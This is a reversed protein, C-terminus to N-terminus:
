PLSCHSADHENWTPDRLPALPGYRTSDPGWGRPFRIRSLLAIPPAPNSGAVEQKYPLREGLQALRGEADPYQPRSCARSTRPDAKCCTTTASADDRDRRLSLHLRVRLLENAGRRLDASRPHAPPRRHGRAAGAHRGPPEDRVDLRVDAVLKRAHRAREPPATRGHPSGLLCVQPVLAWRVSREIAVPIGVVTLSLVVVTLGARVVRLAAGLVAGMRGTSTECARSRKRAMSSAATAATGVVIAAGILAGFGGVASASRPRGRWQERGYPRALGLLDEFLLAEVGIFFVGIPLSIIGIGIFLRRHARYIRFASRLIQGITRETEIPETLVPSWRTRTLLLAVLGVLGALIALALLPNQQFFILANSGAAVAGCFFDTVNPGFYHIAPIQVSSDRQSHEQWEIPRLWQPKTSPGTPGNNFGAEKQGWRGGFRLWAYSDTPSDVGPRFSSRRRSSASARRARTTAASDRRSRETGDLGRDLLLERALRRGPVRDSADRGEPAEHRGLGSARRGRAPLVRGRVAADRARGGRRGAHFVLQIM